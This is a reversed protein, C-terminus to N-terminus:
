NKRNGVKKNIFNRMCIFPTCKLQLLEAISNSSKEWNFFDEKSQEYHVIKGNTKTTKFRKWVHELVLHKWWNRYVGDFPKALQPPFSFPCLMM